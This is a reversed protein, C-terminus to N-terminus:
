RLSDPRRGRAASPLAPRRSMASRTVLLPRTLRARGPMVFPTGTALLTGSVRHGESRDATAPLVEISM